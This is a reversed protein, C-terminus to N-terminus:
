PIMARDCRLDAWEAALAEISRFVAVGESGSALAGQRAVIGVYDHDFDLFPYAGYAGPSSNRHGAGCDFSPSRCELWNGLGYSWDEGTARDVPSKVVTAAGRQDAFLAAQTAPALLDGAALARLFALYEEATWHMGGALRPNASSPLDFAGTPFLGTKQKWAAFVSSWDPAAAARVAMLGAVQMHSSSYAYESGAPAAGALNDDYITEVCREFSAGPLNVCLPEDAFGSTFSLLDRLTVQDEDTWFSLLDHPRSALTLKGADVLDLIVAATVLKSTSASQYVTTATSAGHDHSFRRGDATALLVTFDPQDTVVADLAAAMQAELEAARALCAPDPGDDSASCACAVILVCALARTM